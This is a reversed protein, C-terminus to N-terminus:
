WLSSKGELSALLFRNEPRASAGEYPANLGACGMVAVWLLMLSLQKIISRWRVSQFVISRGTVVGGIKDSYVGEMTM